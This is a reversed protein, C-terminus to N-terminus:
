LLWVVAAAAGNHADYEAVSSHRGIGHRGINDINIVVQLAYGGRGCLYVRSVDVAMSNCSVM